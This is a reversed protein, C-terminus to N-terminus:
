SIRKQQKRAREIKEMKRYYKAQKDIEELDTVHIRNDMAKLKTNRLLERMAQNGEDMPLGVMNILERTGFDFTYAEGSRIPVRNKELQILLADYLRGVKDSLLTNALQKYIFWIREALLTTLRAIIQPQSQV